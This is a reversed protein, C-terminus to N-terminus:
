PGKVWAGPGELVAQVLRNKRGGTLGIVHMHARGVEGEEPAASLLLGLSVYIGAPHSVILHDPHLAVIAEYPVDDEDLYDTRYVSM